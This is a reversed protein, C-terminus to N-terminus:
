VLFHFQYSHMEWDVGNGRNRGQETKMSAHVTNLNWKKVLDPIRGHIYESKTQDGDLTGITRVEFVVMKQQHDYGGGVPKSKSQEVIERQLRRTVEYEEMHMGDLLKELDDVTTTAAM